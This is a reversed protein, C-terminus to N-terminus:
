KAITRRNLKEFFDPVRNQKGVMQYNTKFFFIPFDLPFLGCGLTDDTKKRFKQYKLHHNKHFPSSSNSSPPPLIWDHNDGWTLQAKKLQIRLSM